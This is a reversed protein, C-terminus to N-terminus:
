LIFLLGWDARASEPDVAVVRGRTFTGSTTDGQDMVWIRGDPGKVLEVPYAVSLNAITLPFFGGTLAFDIVFGQYMPSFPPLTGAYDEFCTDDGRTWPAVMHITFVPNRFRVAPIQLEVLPNSEGTCASPNSYVRGTEYQTVTTMCPNPSVDAMGDGTCEPVDLPLRGTLLPSADPDTVCQGTDPDVIRDHLFGTGRPNTSSSQTRSVVAFAEGARVEYRELTPVCEAPPLPGAVCFGGNDPDTCTYGPECLPAEPDDPDAKCTMVCTDPGPKRSPDAVCQWGFASDLPAIAYDKPQVDTILANEIRALDVCQADSTCGDIPTTRLVRRRPELEVYGQNVNRVTYERRSILLDRCRAELADALETPFCMGRDISAPTEPHFVCTEGVNCQSSAQCGVLQVIDYDEVGMECFPGAGDVLVVEGGMRDIVGVRTPPGDVDTNRVDRSIVGEWVFAWDDNLVAALDPFVQERTQESARLDLESVVVPTSGAPDHPCIENHLRPLLHQNEFHVFEGNVFRFIDSSLRPGRSGASPDFDVCSEAVEHRLNAADRLQHPLALPLAVELPDDFNEFDAQHDDDINVVYVLTDSASVLAYHGVMYLPAPVGTQGEGSGSVATTLVFTEVDTPVAGRPLVIGPGRADARRPPNGPDGVPFCSFTAYNTVDHIFRPDIQTDCERRTRVNAVRISKDTAIAYVFEFEGVTGDYEGRTGGMDIVGTSDLATVGVKGELAISRTLDPLGDDGLEAITISAHNEAGIFLQTGDDSVHVAVPRPTVLDEPPQTGADPDGMPGADTMGVGEAIGTPSAAGAGCEVPCTLEDVISATGDQAFVVAKVVQGGGDVVAVANCAPYAVYFLGAPQSPCAVGYTGGAPQAALDRPKALIVDGGANTVASRTVSPDREAAAKVDLISLDCTGANAVVAHCGFSDAEIAVPLIGVPISNKGPVLPDSDLVAGNTLNLLAVTGDATELAFGYYDPRVVGEPPDDESPACGVLPQGSRVVTGDDLLYDGYCAIALDTPRDLARPEVANLEQSCAGSLALALLAVVVRNM